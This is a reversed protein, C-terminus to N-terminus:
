VAGMLERDIRIDAKKRIETLWDKFVQDGRISKFRDYLKALEKEDPEGAKDFEQVLILFYAFNNEGKTAEGAKVSFVSKKIPEINGIGPITDMRSFFPTEQVELDLEKAIEELNKSKKLRGALEEFKKETAERTKDEKLEDLVKERVDELKPEQPPIRETVKLLFSAEPTIVLDSLVGDGLAFATNFFEPSVGIAPVSHDRRSVPGTTAAEYGASQAAAALDGNEAAKRISKLARQIRLRGKHLKLDKIIEERVEDVPKVRAENVEDLKVLDYGFTTKVPGGIEGPKLKELEAEFEPVMTGKPFQGLDGGNTGSARDESHEKAMEAFDAGEKIKKLLDEAKKRAEADAAEAKKKSEEDDGPLANTRFLIHRAKYTKKIHYKIENAEYYEAIDEDRITIKDEFMGPTLRVYQIDVKEPIMFNKKRKEFFAKIEDEGPEANDEFKDKPFTVYSFRVKDNEKRYQELIEQKSVQINEKIMNQVKERQITERMDQEFERASTRSFSLYNEYLGPNFKDDRQFAPLSKIRYALEEDSVEIEQEEAVTELIKALILQDLASNRLDLREVMQESFQDRFQQRYLEVLNTFARNYENVHIEKGDVLAVVGGSSGSSGGMGWVFFTTGIFAVIVAWLITKIMWSDAHKRVFSLM